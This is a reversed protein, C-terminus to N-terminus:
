DLSPYFSVLREWEARAILYDYIAKTYNTRAQTLATQSDLLELQTGVGSKYRTGAIQVAKEAQGLSQQQAFIRKKAEEMNMQAQLIQIKLGDEAKQLSYELKKVGIKAQQVQAARNFGDFLTFSAQLGVAFTKIWKYKNSNFTNDQTQYQYNGFAALSPFYEAQQINIKKELISKQVKLQVIDPNSLLVADNAARVEERPIEEFRFEGKVRLPQELKLALLNKLNTIALELNNQAQILPPESNAVQVQARLLDYESSVGQKYLAQVNDYNAKSLNYSQQMVKVMKQQLLIGYFAKKVNLEVDQRTSKSALKSYNNYKKAIQIATGLKPDFIVQNVNLTATYNNNAGLAFTQTQNTPNFPTNPPIFLVPLKINRMYQGTVSLQPMAGAYAARVQQHANSIEEGAILVDQNNKMALKIAEPLTLVLTDAPTQSRLPLIGSLLLFLSIFGYKMIYDMIARM